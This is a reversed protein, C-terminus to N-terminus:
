SARIEMMLAETIYRLGTIKSSCRWLKLTGRALQMSLCTWGDIDYAHVDIGYDDILLRVLDEGGSNQVAYMLGTMGADNRQHVDIVGTNYLAEVMEKSGSVCGFMFVSVGDVNKASYNHGLLPLM